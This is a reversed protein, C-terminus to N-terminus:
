GGHIYTALLITESKQKIIKEPFITSRASDKHNKM